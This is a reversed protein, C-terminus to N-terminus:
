ELDVHLQQAEDFATLPQYEHLDDDALLKM